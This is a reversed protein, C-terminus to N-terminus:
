QIQKDILLTVLGDTGVRYQVEGYRDGSAPAATGTRSIRAVVQVEDGVALVRSPIMSDQENLEVQLPWTGLALRKVALPPGAEGAHRALVFLAGATDGPKMNAALEIKVRVRAGAAPAVAQPTTGGTAAGIRKDIESIKVTLIQAIEPPPNGALLQQWRTRALALENRQYAAAGSWWLARVNRPDLSMAREVMEGARGNLATQDALALSEGFGLLAEVNSGNSLHVAHEYADAALYFEQRAAHLHGLTLWGDLDDPASRLHRELREILANGSAQSAAAAREADQWHWNSAFPYIAAIATAVAVSAIAVSARPAFTRAESVASRGVLPRAILWVCCAAMLAAIVYFLIV